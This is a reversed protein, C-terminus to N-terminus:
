VPREVEVEIRVATVKYEPTKVRRDRHPGTVKNLFLAPSHFTSFLEGPKVRPDIRIPLSTEGYRSRVVVRVGDELGLRVADGPSIDLTDSPRLVSNATRETMTGANFQYLNRGTSLLFPFTEDTQEPTPLFPICAPSAKVGIAFSERHLMRTGPHDETPCPWQIGAAEIRPYSIGKGAPWVERIENWIEEASRYPFADAKGLAAALECIVQWDTKTAGPPELVKRVKQIRRESTMFTGEKEFNSAVPFFVTGFRAATENMFLDQIIVLELNEFATRTASEQACSLYVDYGMVWLGKVRGEAAADIMELLNLGRRSTLPAKWVEEFRAKGEKISISGTLISPDCGMHASGQVNNQGRLPNVGTGPKGINGTLLALNVLCMVGETGQVHETMGLGHLMMAPTETAYTRAAQRILSAEVGCIGAAREPTWERIFECYAEFDTVRDRVFGTDYLREEVITHAMAHLLPINTGPRLALHTDAYQALEIKRPDVVILRAGRLAAQKIRAGVVPHNETANTGCLLLTKAAEIDDFSNTAAGTGLMRKMAAATPTHCVRACCDVNHTDLVVRAFKQALYNEENTARASGLVGLSDPGHEARLRRIEGATHAIAEEWSVPQWDGNKRIMPRTIRDAATVFDFAYRGKVCLHGKNVPSELAPRVALIRGDRVGVEMECGVACYPCTTRTWTAPVGRQVRSRDDLAGSPCADACAGCSVCSSTRLDTGSDPVIRIRDGRELVRWVFQGQVEECIRVCRFCDVCQSMDVHLYPHSDDRLDPAPHGQLEAMLDYRRIYRHFEKEPFREVAEAPYGRAILGLMTRRLDELEPTHSDIQMGPEVPTNCATLPKEYGAVRVVCLRCGGYPQLRQDWCLTPVEIGERRLVQLITLGPECELARGNVTLRPM